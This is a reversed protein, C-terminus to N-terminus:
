DFLSHNFGSCSSLPESDVSVYSGTNCRLLHLDQSDIKLQAGFSPTCSNTTTRLFVGAQDKAGDSREYFSSASIPDAGDLTQGFATVSGDLFMLAYYNAHVGDLAVDCSARALIAGHTAIFNEDVNQGTCGALVIALFFVALRMM